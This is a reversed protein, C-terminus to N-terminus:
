RPLSATRPNHTDPQNIAALVEDKFNYLLRDLEWSQLGAEHALEQYFREHDTYNRFTYGLAQTIQKIREDVAIANHFDPHYVDMWINRAYKDGIGHFRKLFAVKAETGPQSLAQLRAEELGGMQIILGYNDILWEAKRQPMRVKAERLVSKLLQLRQQPHLESLADFTVRQYNSQNGILGYWGRSNGMTSFSQLLFHWIFDRRDLMKSEAKLASLKDHMEQSPNALFAVLRKRRVERNDNPLDNVESMENEFMVNDILRVGGVWAATSMLGREIPGHLEELTDPYALSLYEPQVGETTTYVASAADRLTDADREGREWAARAANLAQSLALAQQRAEGQLFVNRSSLALGDPERVTPVGIIEIPFNLDAVMRRIVALQQADKQGFYAHTPQIINFLKAVVTAVGDFHGPRHAGELIDGLGAVHVKTSHGTPYIESADPAFVAAVGEERLMALDRQLDRPYRALDDPRDFQTPNVFISVAVTANEARARRVLEIHGAHLYGMTPVLGLPTSLAPRATRWESITTYLKM